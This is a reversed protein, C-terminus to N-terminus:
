FFNKFKAKKRTKFNKHCKVWCFWKICVELIVRLHILLALHVVQVITFQHINILQVQHITAITQRDSETLIWVEHDLVTVMWRIYKGVTGM